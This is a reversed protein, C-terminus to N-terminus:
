ANITVLGDITEITATYRLVDGDRFVEFSRIGVVNPAQLIRARQAAEFQAENPSAGFVVEFFPVGNDADFAMENRLTQAFNSITQETATLGTIMKLNGDDGLGIDNNQDTSITIM